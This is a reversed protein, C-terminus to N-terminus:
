THLKRYKRLHFLMQLVRLYQPPIAKTGPRRLRMAKLHNVWKEYAKFVENVVEDLTLVEINLEQLKNRTDSSLPAISAFVKRYRAKTALSGLYYRLYNKLNEEANYKSFKDNVYKILDEAKKYYSGVEVHIIEASGDDFVKFGVIDAEVVGGKEHTAYPVSTLVFYGLLVLWEAVLEESWTMGFSM